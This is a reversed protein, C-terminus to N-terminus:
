LIRFKIGISLDTQDIPNGDATTLGHLYRFTANASIRPSLNYEPSATIGIQICQERFTGNSRYTISATGATAMLPIRFKAPVPAFIYGLSGNATYGATAKESQDGVLTSILLSSFQIRGIFRNKVEMDAFVSGLGSSGSNGDFKLQPAYAVSAGVSIQLLDSSQAYGCPGILLLIFLILLPNSESKIQRSKLKKM